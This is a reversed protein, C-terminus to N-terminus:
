KLATAKVDIEIQDTELETAPLPDAEFCLSDLMGPTQICLKQPGSAQGLPMKEIRDGTHPLFSEVEANVLGDEEVRSVCIFGAKMKFESDLTKSDFIRTINASLESASNLNGDSTHLTRFSIGPIENRIVRALGSVMGGDPGDFGVIWLLDAADMIVQRLAMFDDEALSALFPDEVELLSICAKGKISPMEPDWTVSSTQYSLKELAHSLNDSLEKAAKSLKPPEIIIVDTTRSKEKEALNANAILLSVQQLGPKDFDHLKMVDKFGNRPLLPELTDLASSSRDATHALEFSAARAYRTSTSCNLVSYYLGPNSLEILCIQGGDKLLKRANGLAVEPHAVSGTINFVIVVDYKQEKVEQTEPTMEIDLVAFKVIDNAISLQKQARMVADGNPYSITYEATAFIDKLDQMRNLLVSPADDVLGTGMELISM